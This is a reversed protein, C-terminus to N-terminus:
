GQVEAPRLCAEAGQSAQEDPLSEPLVLTFASGKGYESEIFLQGGLLRTLEKSLSLGLGVGDRSYGGENLQTFSEFIKEQDERKIGIGTDKVNIRIWFIEGSREQVLEVWVRGEETFKIGNGVLNLLIQSLARRDTFILVEEEPLSCELKLQKREALPLLTSLVEKILTRCSITEPNFQVKGSQIRVLDLLDDILALLHQASLLISQLQTEQDATLPGPLKMLLTSTFGIIANLPTRLEHSINALFRDKTRNAKELEANKEQLAQEFIKRETVDRAAAFVGQLKGNRDAFTTANYSVVKKTGDKACATLEYDIVKGKQLVLRIGEEARAADTFYNKFHTGILEDRLLGTLKEMQQNVDTIYGVPDTTILADINSEVLSRTYYQQDRLQQELNKQNTINRVSALVGAVKGDVDFSISINCSVPIKQGDKTLVTLECNRLMGERLTTQVAKDAEEPHVFCQKFPCSILETRAYGTLASMQKNLDTIVGLPNTTVLADINAELLSRNYFEKAKLEETLRIEASLDKALFLYGRIQGSSNLWPLITSQTIFVEGNRRRQNFLGEWKGDRSIAAKIEKRKGKKVEEPVFLLSVDQKGVVEEPKYGYRLRAGQNWLRIKGETDTGVLIYGASAKLLTFLFDYVEQEEGFLSSDYLLLGPQRM